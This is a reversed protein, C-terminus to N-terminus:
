CGHRSREGVTFTEPGRLIVVRDGVAAKPPKCVNARSKHICDTAPKAQRRLCNM